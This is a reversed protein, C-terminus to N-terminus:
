NTLRTLAEELFKIRSANKPMDEEKKTESILYEIRKSLNLLIIIAQQEFFSEISTDFLLHYGLLLDVSPARQGKECRSINSYDSLGMLYAIDAQTLPSRKRYMRLFNPPHSM